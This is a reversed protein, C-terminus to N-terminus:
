TLYRGLWIFLAAGMSKPDTTKGIRPTGNSLDTVLFEAAVHNQFTQSNVSYTLAAATSGGTGVPIGSVSGNLLHGQFRSRKRLGIIIENQQSYPTEEDLDGTSMLTRGQAKYVLASTTSGTIRYAYFNVTTAGGSANGTTYSFTITRAITSIGTIAYDGAPISGGLNVVSITRWGTYTNGHALLEESLAALIANEATTNTFTITVVNGAVAWGSSAFGTVETGQGRQYAVPISRLHPVGLPWHATTITQDGNELYLGAWDSFPSAPNYQAPAKYDDMWVYEGLDHRNERDSQMKDITSGAPMLGFAIQLAITQSQALGAQWASNIPASSLLGVTPQGLADFIFGQLARGAQTPVQYSLGAPDSTPFTLVYGSTPFGGGSIEQIMQTLEDIMFELRYADIGGGNVMSEGNTQPTARFIIVKGYRVDWTGIKTLTGGYPSGATVSYDVGETLQLNPLGTQQMTAFIESMAQYGFPIAFTAPSSGPTFTYLQGTTTTAIM